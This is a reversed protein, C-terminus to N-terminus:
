RNIGRIAPIEIRLRDTHFVNGDSGILNFEVSHVGPGSLFEYEGNGRARLEGGIAQPSVRQFPIGRYATKIRVSSKMQAPNPGVAPAAVMHIYRGAVWPAFQAGVFRRYEITGSDPTQTLLCTRPDHKKGHWDARVNSSGLPLFLRGPQWWGRGPCTGDRSVTFFEGDWTTEGSKTLLKTYRGNGAPNVIELGGGAFRFLVIQGRQNTWLGQADQNLQALRYPNISTYPTEAIASGAASFSLVFLRLHNAIRLM